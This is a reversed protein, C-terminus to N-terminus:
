RNPMPYALVTLHADADKVDAEAVAPRQSVKITVLDKTRVSSSDDFLRQGEADLKSAECEIILSGLLERNIKLIHSVSAMEPLGNSLSAELDSSDVQL